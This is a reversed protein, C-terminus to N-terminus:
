VPIPQCTVGFESAVKEAIELTSWELKRGQKIERGVQNYHHELVQLCTQTINGKCPHNRNGMQLDHVFFILNDSPLFTRNSCIDLNNGAAKHSLCYSALTNKSFGPGAWGHYGTQPETLVDQVHEPAITQGTPFRKNYEALDNCIKFNWDYRDREFYFAYSLIVSVPSIFGKYFMRFAEEFNNTNLHKLIHERCHTVTDRYMYVPFYTMFDAVFPVGLALQSTHAWSHVWGRGPDQLTCGTGLVRVKTGNFITSKTVPTFFASDSDMWAIVTDNSLLDIFFSSWLQRNYGAPKPSGQFALTDQKKPLPEYFFELKRDPFYKHAQTKLKEAFEHDEQSEEDLAIVFNGFSPPWFLVATRFVNCLYRERHDPRKGSMRVFLSISTDPTEKTTTPTEVTTMGESAVPRERTSQSHYLFPPIPIMHTKLIMMVSLSILLCALVLARTRKLVM